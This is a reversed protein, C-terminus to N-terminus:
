RRRQTIALDVEVPEGYLAASLAAVQRHTLTYKKPRVEAMVAVYPEFPCIFNPALCRREVANARLQSTM